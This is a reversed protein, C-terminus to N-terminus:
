KSINYKEYVKNKLRKKVSTGSNSSLLIIVKLMSCGIEVKWLEKM